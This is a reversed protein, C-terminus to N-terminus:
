LVDAFGRKTKMFWAYGLQLVILSIVTVAALWSWEPRQGWLLTNRANVVIVTLPNARMAVQFAFPKDEISYFIPSLFMLVQLVVGIVQGTDRLYVGLSALWWALGLTLPLLPLLVLPFWVLTPSVTYTFILSGLLLVAVGILAQVLAAGLACVALVELPFVVRKVYSVNGAILNPALGLTESFLGYVILGAYLTLAFGATSQSVANPWRSGLVVGFVFTYVALMILPLLFSWLLGLAAGRYRAQVQRITLQRILGRYRWLTRPILDPRLYHAVSLSRPDIRTTEQM